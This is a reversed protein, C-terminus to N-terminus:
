VHVAAELAREAVTFAAEPRGLRAANEKYTKLLSPNELLRTLKLRFTAPNNVKIAAGHELLFDSNRSEQGPIPNVIAMATGCALAESTTLGGPKSVLIDSISMFEHMSNTFGIVKTRHRRSAITELRAKLEENKGTSVVVQLPVEVSLIARYLEEVPGVGFGGSMQLIIPRDHALDHKELLAARDHPRGFAPDIPIGSVLIDREPVGWHTLYAAGEETATFYQECPQNVWLRHTEFDTTVTFQPAAFEGRRKLMAIMEAPLFHTNVVCDWSETTL